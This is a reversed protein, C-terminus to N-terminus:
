SPERTATLLVLAIREAHAYAPNDLEEDYVDPDWERYTWELGTGALREAAAEQFPDRGGVIGTGAFLV